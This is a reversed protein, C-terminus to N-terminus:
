FEERALVVDFYLRNFLSAHFCRHNLRFGSQGPSKKLVLQGVGGPESFDIMLEFLPSMQVKDVNTFGAIKAFTVKWARVTQRM